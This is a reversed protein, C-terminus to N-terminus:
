RETNDKSKGNDFVIYNIIEGETKSEELSSIFDSVYSEKGYGTIGLTQTENNAMLRIFFNKINSKQEYTKKLKIGDVTDVHASYQNKLKDLFRRLGQEDRFSIDRISFTTYLEEKKM